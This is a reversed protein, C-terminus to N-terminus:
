DTESCWGFGKGEARGRQGSVALEAPAVRFHLSSQPQASPTCIAYCYRPRAELRVQMSAVNSLASPGASASSVAAAACTSSLDGM